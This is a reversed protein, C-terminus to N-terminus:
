LGERLDIEKNIMTRNRYHEYLPTFILEDVVIGAGVAVLVMGFEKVAFYLGALLIILPTRWHRKCITSITAVVMGIVGTLCMTYKTTEQGMVLGYIFFGIILGFNCLFSLFWFTWKAGRCRKTTKSATKSM